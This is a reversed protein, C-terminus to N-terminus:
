HDGGSCRSFYWRMVVVEWVPDPIVGSDVGQLSRPGVPITPPTYVEIDCV